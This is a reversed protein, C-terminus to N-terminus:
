PTRPTAPDGGLQQAGGLGLRALAPLREEHEVGHGAAVGGPEVLSVAPLADAVDGAIREPGLAPEAAGRDVVAVERLLPQAPRASGESRRLRCGARTSRESRASAIAAVQRPTADGARASM